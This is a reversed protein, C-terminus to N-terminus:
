SEVKVTSIGGKKEVFITKSFMSKAESGHDIVFIQRNRSLKELLELVIEKGIADLGDFPEDLVIPNIRIGFNSQLIDIVTFDICLSLAKLEGGSLSGVSTQRGDIVLSESFKAVVDGKANEKYSNLVYSATPWVLNIYATVTDNFKDVVSDLVYAQAGTPSYIAALTKYFELDHHKRDLLNTLKVKVENLAKIKSLLESNQSLKLTMNELSIQKKTILMNVEAIMQQAKNYEDLDKSKKQSIKVKLAKIDNEKSITADKDDIKAKLDSMQLRIQEQHRFHQAKADSIDVASGCERCKDSKNFETIQNRLSAFQSRLMSGEARAVSIEREKDIIQNELSVYSSLDPKPVDTYENVRQRLDSIESRHKEILSKLETENVLSETYAEIKSKASNIKLDIDAIESAINKANLDAEKKLHQFESLDLLQLLFNKKDADNLSIFRNGQHQQAAYTSVLFQDYSLRLKNEWENQTIEVTQGNKQFVVGKPRHRTVTWTDDGIEVVCTAYGSKVGRRAIESATIKRPLKDFLAFSLANFIATKGAGNSRQADANWGEVLVLGDNEFDIHASQISLIDQITISKINM